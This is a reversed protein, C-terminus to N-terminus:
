HVQDYKLTVATDFLKLQNKKELGILRFSDIITSYKLYIIFIDSNQNEWMSLPFFQSIKKNLFFKINIKKEKQFVMLALEKLSKMIIIKSTSYMAM